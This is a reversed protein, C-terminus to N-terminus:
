AAKRDFRSLAAHYSEVALRIRTPSDLTLVWADAHVLTQPNPRLTNVVAIVPTKPLCREIRALSEDMWEVPHTRLTLIATPAGIAAARLAEYPSTAVAVDMHDCLRLRLTELEGGAEGVLLVRTMPRETPINSAHKPFPIRNSM